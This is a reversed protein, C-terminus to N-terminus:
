LENYSGIYAEFDLIGSMSGIEYFRRKTLFYDLDNQKSLEELYLSLDFFKPMKKCFKLFNKKCLISLGYDIYKMNLSFDNKNYEIIKKGNFIVNSKDWKNQNKIIVMLSSKNSKKVKKLVLKINIPLFSDGYIIMFHDELFKHANHITGGTGLLSKGDKVFNINIGYKSSNKLYDIVQDGLYGLCLIVDKIGQKSLYKLQYDIFPIGNIKILCKPVNTTLPRIRKALGGALILTQM